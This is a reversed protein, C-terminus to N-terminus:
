WWSSACDTDYRCPSGPVKCHSCIGKEKQHKLRRSISWLPTCTAEKEKTESYRGNPKTNQVGYNPIKLTPCTGTPQEQGLLPPTCPEKCLRDQAGAAKLAAGVIFTRMKQFLCKGIDYVPGFSM